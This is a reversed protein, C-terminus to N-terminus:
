INCLLCYIFLAALTDMPKDWSLLLIVNDRFTFMPGCRSVFRSFNKATNQPNLPPLNALYENTPQTTDSANIAASVIINEINKTKLLSDKEQLSKLSKTAPSEVKNPAKHCPIVKKQCQFHCITGCDICQSGQKILGWLLGHCQDCYTPKSFTTEKFSHTSMSVLFSFFFLFFLSLSPFQSKFAKDRSYYHGNNKIIKGKDKKLGEFISDQNQGGSQLCRRENITSM